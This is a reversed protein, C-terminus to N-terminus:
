LWKGMALRKAVQPKIETEYSLPMVMIATVATNFGMTYIWTPAIRSRALGAFYGRRIYSINAMTFLTAFFTTTEWVRETYYLRDVIAKNKAFEYEESM